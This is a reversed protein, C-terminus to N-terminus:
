GGLFSPRSTLSLIQELVLLKKGKMVSTSFPPLFFFVFQCSNSEKYTYRNVKLNFFATFDPFVRFHKHIPVGLVM